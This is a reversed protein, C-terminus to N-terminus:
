EESTELWEVADRLTCVLVQEPKAACHELLAPLMRNDPDHDQLHHKDYERKDDTM